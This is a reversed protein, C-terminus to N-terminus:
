YVIVYMARPQGRWIKISSIRSLLDDVVEGSTSDARQYDADRVSKLLDIEFGPLM